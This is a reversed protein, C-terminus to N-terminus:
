VYKNKFPVAIMMKLVKDISNRSRNAEKCTKAKASLKVRPSHQNSLISEYWYYRV